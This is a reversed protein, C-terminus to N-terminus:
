DGYQGGIKRARLRDLLADTRKEECDCTSMLVVRPNGNNWKYKPDYAAGCEPCRPESM